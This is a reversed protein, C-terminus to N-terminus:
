FVLMLEASLLNTDSTTTAAWGNSQKADTRVHVYDINFFVGSTVRYAMGIGTSITPGSSVVLNTENYKVDRELQGSVSAKIQINSMLLTRFSYGARLYDGGEVEDNSENIGLRLNFVGDTSSLSSLKLEKELGFAVEHREDERDAYSVYAAVAEPGHHSIIDFRIENTVRANGGESLVMRNVGLGILVDHTLESYHDMSANFHDVDHEYEIEVGDVMSKSATNANGLSTMVVTEGGDHDQVFEEFAYAHSTLFAFIFTLTRKM